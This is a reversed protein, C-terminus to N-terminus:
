GRGQSELSMFLCTVAVCLLIVGWHAECDRRFAGSQEWPPQDAQTGQSDKELTTM